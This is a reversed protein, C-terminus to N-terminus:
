MCSKERKNATDDFKNNTQHYSFVKYSVNLHIMESIKINIYGAIIQAVCIAYIVMM